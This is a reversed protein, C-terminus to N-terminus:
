FSSVYRYIKDINTDWSCLSTLLLVAINTAFVLMVNYPDFNYMNRNHCFDNSILIM